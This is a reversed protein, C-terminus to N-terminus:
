PLVEYEQVDWAESGSGHEDSWPYRKLWRAGMRDLYGAKEGARHEDVATQATEPSLHLSLVAMSSEYTCSCYRAAFVKM